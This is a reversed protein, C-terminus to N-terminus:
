LYKIKLNKKLIRWFKATVIAVMKLYGIYLPRLM